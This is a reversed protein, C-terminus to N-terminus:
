DRREGKQVPLASLDVVARIRHRFPRPDLRNAAGYLPDATRGLMTGAAELAGALRRLTRGIPRLRPRVRPRISEAKGFHMALIPGLAEPPTRIPARPPTDAM